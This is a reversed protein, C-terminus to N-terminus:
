IVELYELFCSKYISDIMINFHNQMEIDFKKFVYEPSVVAEKKGHTFIEEGSTKINPNTIDFTADGSNVVNEGMTKASKSDIGSFERTLETGLKELEGKVNYYKVFQQIYPIKGNVIIELLSQIDTISSNDVQFPIYRGNSFKSELSSFIPNLSVDWNMIDSLIDSISRGGQNLYENYNKFSM